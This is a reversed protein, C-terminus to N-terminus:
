HISNIISKDTHAEGLDVVADEHYRHIFDRDIYVERDDMIMDEVVNKLHKALGM